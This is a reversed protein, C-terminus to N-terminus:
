RENEGFYKLVANFKEQTKMAYVKTDELADKADISFRGIPTLSLDGFIVAKDYHTTGDSTKLSSKQGALESVTRGMLGLSGGGAENESKIRATEEQAVKELAGLEKELKRLEDVVLQSFSIKEALM